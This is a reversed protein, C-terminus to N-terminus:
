SRFHEYGSSPLPPPPGDWSIGHGPCTTGIRTCALPFAAKWAQEFATCRPAPVTFLLEFDEGDALAHALAPQDDPMRSAAEAVPICASSLRAGVDSAELIQELDAILGDSVDCLATAWGGDRLWAGESLRPTFALHRGLASGGLHGTVYIAEGPQAGSRLLARGKAVRGVGFIHLELVPGRALDGGIIVTGANAAARQAGRYLNELREVAVDPPAVLDILLWLPSGGMAAIDSFVRNVAKAGVLSAATEPLFHVGEIVPDTTLLWDFPGDGASVVATDDGIGVPVTDQGPLLAALRRITEREGIDKLRTHMAATHCRPQRRTFSIGTL